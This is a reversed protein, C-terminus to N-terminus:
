LEWVSIYPHLKLEVRINADNHHKPFLRLIGGFALSNGLSVPIPMEKLIFGLASADLSFLRLTKL